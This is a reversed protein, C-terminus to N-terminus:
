CRSTAICMMDTTSNILDQYFSGLERGIERIDHWAELIPGAGDVMEVEDVTLERM